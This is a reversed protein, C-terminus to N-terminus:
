RPIPRFAFSISDLIKTVVLCLAISAPVVTYVPNTSLVSTTFLEQMLLILM